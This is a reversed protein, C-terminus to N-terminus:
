ACAPFRPPNLMPLSPLLAPMLFMTRTKDQRTKDQRTKDQRTKDQRTKDQRTKDKTRTRTKNDKKEERQEKDKNKTKTKQRQEARAKSEGTVDQHREKLHRAESQRKKGDLVTKRRLDRHGCRLEGCGHEEVVREGSYV